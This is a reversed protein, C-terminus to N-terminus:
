EGVKQFRRSMLLVNCPWHVLVRLHISLVGRKGASLSHTSESASGKFESPIKGIKAVTKRLVWIICRSRAAREGQLGRTGGFKLIITLCLEMALPHNATSLYYLALIVSFTLTYLISDSAMEKM